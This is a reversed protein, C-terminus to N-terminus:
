AAKGVVEVAAKEKYLDQILKAFKSGVVWYGKGSDSFGAADFLRKRLALPADALQRLLGLVRVPDIDHKSLEDLDLKVVDGESLAVEMETLSSISVGSLNFDRNFRSLESATLLEEVIDRIRIHNGSAKRYLEAIVRPKKGSELSRNWVALVGDGSHLNKIFRSATVAPDEGPRALVKHTLTLPVHNALDQGETWQWEPVLQKAHQLVRNPNQNFGDFSPHAAKSLQSKGTLDLQDLYWNFVIKKAKPLYFVNGLRKAVEIIYPPAVRRSDKSYREAKEAGLSSATSGQRSKDLAFNTLFKLIRERTPNNWGKLGHSKSFTFLDHLRTKSISVAIKWLENMVEASLGELSIGLEQQFGRRLKELDAGVLNISLDELEHIKLGRARKAEFYALVREFFEREEPRIVWGLERLAVIGSRELLFVAFKDSFTEQALRDPNERSYVLDRLYIPSEEEPNDKIPYIGNQWEVQFSKSLLLRWINESIEHLTTLAVLVDLSVSPLKEEILPGHTKKFALVKRKTSEKFKIQGIRQMAQLSESPVFIWRKAQDGSYKLKKPHDNLQLEILLYDKGTDRDNVIVTHYSILAPFTEGTGLKGVPAIVQRYVLGVQKGFLDERWSMPLYGLALRLSQVRVLRLDNASPQDPNASAEPTFTKGFAELTTKISPGSGETGLSAGKGQKKSGAERLLDRKTRLQKVDADEVLLKVIRPIKRGSAIGPVGSLVKKVSREDPHQLDVLQGVSEHTLIGQAEKKRGTIGLIKERLLNTLREVEATVEAINVALKEASVQVASTVRPEKTPVAPGKIWEALVLEVEPAHLHGFLVFVRPRDPNQALVQELGERTMTLETQKYFAKMSNYHTQAGQGMAALNRLFRLGLNTVENLSPLSSVGSPIWSQYQSSAAGPIDPESVQGGRGVRRSEEVAERMVLFGIIEDRTVGPPATQIMREVLAWDSLNIVPDEVKINFLAAIILAVQGPDGQFPNSERESRNEILFLFWRSDSLGPLLWKPMAFGFQRLAELDWHTEALMTLTKGGAELHTLEPKQVKQRDPPRPHISEAEYLLASLVEAIRQPSRDTGLMGRYKGITEQMTGLSAGKSGQKAVKSKSFQAQVAKLDEERVKRVANDKLRKLVTDAAGVDTDKGSLTSWLKRYAKHAANRTRTTTSSFEKQVLAEDMFENERTFAQIRYPMDVFLQRIAQRGGQSLFAQYGKQLIGREQPGAKAIEDHLREHNMVRFWEKPNNLLYDPFIVGTFGFYPKMLNFYVDPNQALERFERFEKREGNGKSLAAQIMDALKLLAQRDKEIYTALSTEPLGALNLGAKREGGVMDGAYTAQIGEFDPVKIGAAPATLLEDVTKFHNQEMVHMMFRRAKYFFGKAALVENGVLTGIKRDFSLIQPKYGPAWTVLIINNVPVGLQALERAFVDEAFLADVAQSEGLMGTQQFHVAGEPVVVTPSSPSLVGLVERLADGQMLADIARRQDDTLLPLVGMDALQGGAQVFARLQDPLAEVYKFKKVLDPLAGQLAERIQDETKLVELDLYLTVRNGEISSVRYAPLAGFLRLGKEWMTLKLSEIHLELADESKILFDKTNPQEGFFNQIVGAVVPNINDYKISQRIDHPLEPLPGTGLSSGHSSSAVENDLQGLGFDRGTLAMLIENTDRGLTEQNLRVAKFHYEAEEGTLRSERIARKIEEESIQKLERVSQKLQEVDWGYVELFGRGILAHTLGLQHAGDLVKRMTFEMADQYASERVAAELSSSRQDRQYQELMLRDWQMNNFLPNNTLSFLSPALTNKLAMYKFWTFQPGRSKMVDRRLIHSNDFAVPIGERFGYNGVQPDTKRMLVQSALIASFAKAPNESVPLHEKAVNDNTVVRVLFYDSLPGELPPLGEDREKSFRIEATNSYKGLLQYYLMEKEPSTYDFNMRYGRESAHERRKLVWLSGDEVDEFIGMHQIKERISPHPDLNGADIVEDPAFMPAIQPHSHLISGKFKKFYSRSVAVFANWINAVVAPQQTSLRYSHGPQAPPAAPPQGVTLQEGARPAAQGDLEYLKFDKGTLSMLLSNLDTGLTNQNELTFRVIDEVQHDPIRAIKTAERIDAESLSKIRQIAARVVNMDLQLARIFAEGIGREQIVPWSQEMFKVVAEHFAGEKDTKALEEDRLARVKDQVGRKKEFFEAETLSYMLQFIENFLFQFKFVDYHQARNRLVDVAVAQSNDIAFPIGNAFSLNGFHSDMKRALVYAPLLSSFVTGFETAAYHHPLVNGPIMIRELYYDQPKRVLLHSLDRDRDSLFRIEAINTIKKGPVGSLLQYIFMATEPVNRSALVALGQPTEIWRENVVWISRDKKDRVILKDRLQFPNTMKFLKTFDLDANRGGEQLYQVFRREFPVLGKDNLEEFMLRIIQEKEAGEIIEYEHVEGEISSPLSQPVSIQQAIKRAENYAQLRELAIKHPALLSNIDPILAELSQKVTEPSTFDLFLRPSTGGVIEMKVDTKTRGFLGGLLGKKVTAASVHINIRREKVKPAAPNLLFPNVMTVTQEGVKGAFTDPTKELADTFWKQKASDNQILGEFVVVGQYHEERRLDIAIRDANTGLSAGSLDEYRFKSEVALAALLWSMYRSEVDQYLYRRRTAYDLLRATDEMNLGQVYEEVVRAADSKDYVHGVLRGVVPDFQDKLSQSMPAKVLDGPYLRSAYLFRFESKLFDPHTLFLLM